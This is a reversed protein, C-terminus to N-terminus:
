PREMGGTEIQHLRCGDLRCPPFVSAGRRYPEGGLKVTMARGLRCSGAEGAWKNQTSFRSTISSEVRPGRMRGMTRANVFELGLMNDIRWVVQCIREINSEMPRLIFCGPLQAESYACAGGRNYHMIACPRPKLGPVRAIALTPDAHGGRLVFIPALTGM